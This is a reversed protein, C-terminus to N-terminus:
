EERNLKWAIQRLMGLWLGADHEDLNLRRVMRRIKEEATPSQSKLYGSAGLIDLLRETIWDLDRASPAAAQGAVHAPEDRRVLEYLCVAVAQALNMSSHQERTPIRVLWNCHSLDRNSLGVKESGFLLAVKGAPLQERLLQAGRELRHVQLQPERNTVSSTGVVLTCDAVAEALSTYEEARALLDTAGVASRAERFAVDYPRVVRLHEIGFNSMVRAVAGINLPNRTRVLVVRLHDLASPVFL